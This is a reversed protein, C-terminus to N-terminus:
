TVPAQDETVVAVRLHDIPKQTQLLRLFAFTGYLAGLDTNGAIVTFRPGARAVGLPRPLGRRRGHGPRPGRHQAGVLPSSAPTGVVVSGDPVTGGDRRRVPMPQGLLGGLGRVLEDRAASWRPRSSSRAPVPRWPSTRRTGTSRRPTPTRSSSRRPRERPLRAAAERRRGARLAAVPRLRQLRGAVPGRRGAHDHRGHPHGRGHRAGHGARHPDATAPAGFGRNM